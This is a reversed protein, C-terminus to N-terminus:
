KIPNNDNVNDPQPRGIIIALVEQILQSQMELGLSNEVNDSGAVVLEISVSEIGRKIINDTFYVRKDKIEYGIRGQLPLVNRVSLFSKGLNQLPIFPTVENGDAYVGWVGRNNPLVIYESPIEAYTVDRDINRKVRINTFTAIYSGSINFEGEIKQSEYISYKILKASVQSVLLEIERLDYKSEAAVDGGELQRLIQEALRSKLSM